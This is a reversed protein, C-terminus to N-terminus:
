LLMNLYAKLEHYVVCNFNLNDGDGGDPTKKRMALIATAINIISHPEYYCWLIYSILLQCVRHGSIPIFYIATIRCVGMGICHMVGMDLPQSM